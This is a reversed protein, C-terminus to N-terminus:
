KEAEELKVVTQGIFGAAFKRPNENLKEMVLDFEADEFQFFNESCDEIKYIIRSIRASERADKPICMGMSDVILEKHTPVTALDFKDNFLKLKDNIGMVKKM